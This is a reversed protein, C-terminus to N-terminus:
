VPAISKLPQPQGRTVIPAAKATEAQAQTIYGNNAMEQLVYNRRRTAAARNVFPSERAPSQVIGALMAAEELTVDKAHKNFYLRAAAEVGHTGHGFLIQNAYFTFIERKTYRKEIQIAVLVEKIKREPSQDGLQFGIQEAFLGRALQMTLTSGGAVIRRKLVDKALRGLLASVSVGFHQNFSKDEASIIAERLVPSIDDYGIILRREIAFEALTEGNRAYVRTIASPAYHDLVSIEPLDGAYAFMVGSLIGLLAVVLFLAVLGAHGAFRIVVSTSPRTTPDISNRPPAKAM